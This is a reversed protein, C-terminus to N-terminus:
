ADREFRLRIEGLLAELGHRLAVEARREGAVIVGNRSGLDVLVLGAETERVEAHTRSVTPHPLRLDNSGDRGLRFPLHTIPVRDGAETVVVWREAPLRLARTARLALGAEPLQLPVAYSLAIRVTGEALLPDAGVFTEVPGALRWGEAEARRGVRERIRAQLRAVEGALRLYDRSSLQVDVRNPAAGDRVADAVAAECRAEIEAAHLPGAGLRAARELIREWRNEGTM